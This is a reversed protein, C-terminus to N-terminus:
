HRVSNAEEHGLLLPHIPQSEGANSGTSPFLLVQGRAIEPEEEEEDCGGFLWWIGGALLVAGSVILPLIVLAKIWM